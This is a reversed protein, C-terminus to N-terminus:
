QLTSVSCYRLVVIFAQFDIQESLNGRCSGFRAAFRKKKKIDKKTAGQPFSQDTPCSYLCSGVLPRAFINGMRFGFFFFTFISYM